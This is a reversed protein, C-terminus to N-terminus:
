KQMSACLFSEVGTWVSEHAGGVQNDTEGIKEHCPYSFFLAWPGHM